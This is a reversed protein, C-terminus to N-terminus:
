KNKMRMLYIQGMTKLNKIPEKKLVKMIVKSGNKLNEKKQKDDQNKILNRENKIKKKGM